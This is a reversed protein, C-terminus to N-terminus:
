KECYKLKLLIRLIRSHALITGRDLDNAVVAVAMGLEREEVVMEILIGDLRHLNFFMDRMRSRWSGSQSTPISFENLLYLHVVSWRRLPCLPMGVVSFAIFPPDVFFDAAPPIQCNLGGRILHCSQIAGPPLILLEEPIGGTAAYHQV